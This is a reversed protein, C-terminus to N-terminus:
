LLGTRPQHDAGKKGGHRTRMLYSVVAFEFIYLLCQSTAVGSSKRERRLYFLDSQVCLPALFLAKFASSVVVRSDACTRVGNCMYLTCVCAHCICQWSWGCGEGERGNGGSKGM